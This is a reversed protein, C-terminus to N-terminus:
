YKLVNLVQIVPECYERMKLVCKINKVFYLIKLKVMEMNMNEDMNSMCGLVM